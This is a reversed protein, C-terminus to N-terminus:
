SACGVTSVRCDQVVACHVDHVFDNPEVYNAANNYTNRMPITSITLHPTAAARKQQHM